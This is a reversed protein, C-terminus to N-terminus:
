RGCCRAVIFHLALMLMLKQGCAIEIITHDHKLM